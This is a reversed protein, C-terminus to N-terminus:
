KILGRETTVLFDDGEAYIGKLDLQAGGMEVLRAANAVFRSPVRIPLDDPHESFYVSRGAQILRGIEYCTTRGVYGAPAVVYVIDADFIRALTVSQVEADSQSADDTEFRVFEIGPELVESGSPSTVTWGAARFTSIAERVAAYHKRFSGIVAVKLAITGAKGNEYRNSSTWPTGLHSSTAYYHHCPARKPAVNVVATLAFSCLMEAEKIDFPM